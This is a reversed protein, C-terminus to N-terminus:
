WGTSSLITWQYRVPMAQCLRGSHESGHCVTRFYCRARAEPPMKSVTWWARIALPCGPRGQTPAHTHIREGHAGMLVRPVARAIFPPRDFNCSGAQQTRGGRHPVCPCPASRARSGRASGCARRARSCRAGPGQAGAGRTTKVAIGGSEFHRYGKSFEM